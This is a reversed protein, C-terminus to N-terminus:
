PGGVPAPDDARRGMGAAAYAELLAPMLADFKVRDADRAFKDPLESRDGYFSVVSCGHPGSRTPGYVSGADQVRFHGPGYWTRGVRLSGKLVLTCYDTDHYHTAFELDPPIVQVVMLPGHPDDGFEFKTVGFFQEALNPEDITFSIRGGRKKVDLNTKIAMHGRDSTVVIM